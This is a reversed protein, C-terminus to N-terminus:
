EECLPPTTPSSRDVVAIPNATAASTRVRLMRRNASAPTDADPPKSPASPTVLVMAAASAISPHGTPM